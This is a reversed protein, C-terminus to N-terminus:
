QPKLNYQQRYKSLETVAILEKIKQKVRDLGILADLQKMSEYEKKEITKSFKIPEPASEEKKEESAKRAAFMTKHVQAKSKVLDDLEEMHERETEEINIEKSEFLFKEVFKIRNSEFKELQDL